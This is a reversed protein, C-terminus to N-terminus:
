GPINKPTFRLIRGIGQNFGQPSIGLIECPKRSVKDILSSVPIKRRQIEALLVPVMTEVGPIGSPAISFNVSKEFATHPAHDSAIVDIRDWLNWLGQQIKKDRLPPNVKAHTDGPLFDENAILLHHPTVEFSTM